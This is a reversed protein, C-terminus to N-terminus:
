CGPPFDRRGASPSPETNITQQKQTDSSPSSAQPKSAQIGRAQQAMSPSIQGGKYGPKESNLLLGAAIIGIM